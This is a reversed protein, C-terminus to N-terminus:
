YARGQPIYGWPPIIGVSARVRGEASSVTKHHGTSEPLSVTCLSQVQVQGYPWGWVLLPGPFCAGLHVLAVIDILNASKSVFMARLTRPNFCPCIKMLATVIYSQLCSGLGYLKNYLCFVATFLVMFNIIFVFYPELCVMFNIVFVLCLKGAPKSPFDILSKSFILDPSLGTSYVHSVHDFLHINNFGRDWM